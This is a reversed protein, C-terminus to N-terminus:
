ESEGGSVVDEDLDDLSVVDGTMLDALDAKLLADKLSQQDEPVLDLPTDGRRNKVQTDAGADILFEVIELAAGEDGRSALRVALHLATDGEMRNRADLDIADQDLLHDLCELSGHRAALHLATNGVSDTANILPTSSTSTSSTHSSLLCEKLLDLNNTRAAGLLVQAPSAGEDSSSM